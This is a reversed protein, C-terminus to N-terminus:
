IEAGANTVVFDLSIFEISKTPQLFIKGRITNNEVDQQTTTTTDIVVKFRDLGQQAQIKNLIPNVLSSFKALTSERNPEFLITNAVARVKRRIDILLRRVNVRDLSSQAQLMTKQGFVVVGEGQQPFSTIPNIDAEYLVDMNAKNLKVSTEITTPLAGRTFGAPAYWPHALSDNLGLAGLVAVSSPVTVAFDGDQIVVDPFYTAAFSTDLNRNSLAQATNTVSTEQEASTVIYDQHDHAQLDMLFLADFREETKDIAYDTIGEASMGPIVLLQIDVDTTESLIDIAKRFAATTPGDPGGLVTSADVHMERWASLNSMASKEKDFIDLGDFGGQFPVTFKFYRKSASEGFDKAIDLFRWGNAATKLKTEDAQTEYAELLEAVASDGSRIYAAEHWQRPDVANTTDGGKCKIWIKELSFANKNYVDADLIEGAATSIAGSNDGVWAPNDGCTPYFRTLNAVLSSVSQSANRQSVSRVDQNQVGWHFSPDVEKTADVGTALNQRLPLPAEVMTTGTVAAGDLVLHHKGAFGVPLASPEMTGAEIETAVEVRVYQSRNPYLGELRLKQKGQDREFDFYLNSDGIVRAIYRESSPDLTVNSFTQLIVPKSDLDDAKRIKVNFTGYEYALDTSKTIGDISVKVNNHGGIGADLMHFRFLKKAGNGLDQSTIWPTFANSFKQQWNEFQPTYVTDDTQTLSSAVGKALFVKGEGSVHVALGSPVDAHSYLYHGREQLKSPDTNLVKKFYIPSTPDMSCLLESQYVSNNFGNLLIKFTGDLLLGNMKGGFGASYAVSASPAALDDDFGTGVTGSDLGLQIGAPTMVVGRLMDTGASIYDQGTAPDMECGLFWVNGALQDISPESFTINAWNVDYTFTLTTSTVATQTTASFNGDTWGSAIGSALNQGVLDFDLQYWEHVEIGSTKSSDYGANEAIAESSAFFIKWVNGNDATFTFLTGDSLVSYEDVLTLTWTSDTTETGSPIVELEEILSVNSVDVTTGFDNLTGDGLVSQTFQIFENSSGKTVSLGSLNTSGLEVTLAGGSTITEGNWAGVTVAPSNNTLEDYIKLNIAAVTDGTVVPILGVATIGTAPISDGVPNFAQGDRYIQFAGGGGTTHQVNDAPNATADHFFLLIKEGNSINEITMHALDLSGTSNTEIAIKVSENSVTEGATEVITSIAGIKSNNAFPNASPTLVDVGEFITSSQNAIQEGVLFGAHTTAGNSAKKGDGIGLTRLFLGSQANRMWENVAMAGFHKGETDGFLNKFEQSTAFVKPVFAPGKQATGIVGAPIGQPQVTGPASLDLEHVSVGPSRMTTEAM